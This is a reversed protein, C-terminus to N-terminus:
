KRARIAAAINESQEPYENSFEYKKAEEDAIKACAEREEAVLEEVFEHEIKAQRAREAEVLSAMYRMGLESLGKEKADADM